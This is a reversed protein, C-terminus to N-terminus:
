AGYKWIVGTDWNERNRVTGTAWLSRTGPIRLLSSITGEGAGPAKIRATVKGGVYHLLVADWSQAWFGSGGDSEIHHLSDKGNVKVFKWRKGDWRGLYAGPLHGEALSSGAVSVWVSKSNRAHIDTFQWIRKGTSTLKPRPIYRWKKGNWHALTNKTLPTKRGNALNVTAWIDKASRVHAVGIGAPVRFAKWAKGDFRQAIPKCTWAACAGRGIFLVQGRPGISAVQSISKVQAPFVKRSWKVGNWHVGFVVGEDQAPRHTAVGFAWVNNPAGSAVNTLRANARPALSAPVTVQTWTKGNWRKLLMEYKGLGRRLTGAAWAGKSGTAAADYLRADGATPVTTVNSVRWGPAPAAQVAPAMAALALAGAAGTFLSRKLFTM